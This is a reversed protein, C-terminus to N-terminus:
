AKTLKSIEKTATCQQIVVSLLSWFPVQEGNTKALPLSTGWTDYVSQIALFSQCRLSVLLTQEARWWWIYTWRLFFRGVHFLKCWIGTANWWQQRSAISLVLAPTRWSHGNIGFLPPNSVAGGDWDGTQPAITKEPRTLKQQVPQPSLSHVPRLASANQPVRSSCGACVLWCRWLINIADERYIHVRSVPLLMAKWIRVM